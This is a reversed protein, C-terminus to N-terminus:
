VKGVDRGKWILQKKRKYSFANYVLHLFALHQLPWLIVNLLLSQESLRSTLFRASVLSFIYLLALPFPLGFLAIFPGATGVLAFLSTAILSGGFFAAVNKTFGSIAEPYSGYMRCSIDDTGLLTAMRMKKRKILRSITIDEVASTKVLEHWQNNKYDKADFMMMQGNAAALSRRKSWRVLRLFLLSLLIWNMTPVVLIEGISDLKQKPFMTLLTLRKRQVYALANEVFFPSVSVDADLFLLYEGNAGQALRHCAYNKGLWGKPLGDSKILKVRKDSNVFENVINPTQDISQDDYVYVEINWYTQQLLNELLNGVNKEENRAPILVSVLPHGSPKGFPLIPRTLFNLLAILFRLVVIFLLFLAIYFLPSM